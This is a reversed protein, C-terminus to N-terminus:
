GRLTVLWAIVLLAAVVATLRLRLPLYVSRAPHHALLRLDVALVVGFMMAMVPLGFTPPLLMALWGGISPIVGWVALRGGGPHRPVELVRGWHVAGLFSLIVAGYAMLAAGAIGSGTGGLAFVAASVFFPILGGYGLWRLRNALTAPVAAVGGQAGEALALFERAGGVFDGGSFVQPLRQWGTMAQLAHFRERQEASGMPMEVFAHDVAHEVLWDQLDRVDTLRSHFVVVDAQRAERM